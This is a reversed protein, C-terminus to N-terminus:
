TDQRVLGDRLRPLSRSRSQRPGPAPLPPTPILPPLMIWSGKWDTPALLGMTWSATVSWGSANGNQDWIRVRGFVQKSTTLVTGSYPVFTNQSSNVQGSDWLDAQNNSLNAASSAAQIEYGSQLWGRPTWCGRHIEM